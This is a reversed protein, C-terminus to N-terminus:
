KLDTIFKEIDEKGAMSYDKAFERVAQGAYEKIALELCILAIGDIEKLPKYYKEIIKRATEM